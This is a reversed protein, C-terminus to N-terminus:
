PIDGARNAMYEVHASSDSKPFCLAIGMVTCGQNPDNFLPVRDTSRAEPKSHRSIPYLLLLGERPDRVARLADGYALDVNEAILQKARQLAKDDLGLEEDGRGKESAPNVLSKISGPYLKEQSRTILNMSLRGKIKLDEAGVSDDERSRVSVRWSVLEGEKVQEAIYGRVTMPDLRSTPSTRYEALFAAIHQHSVGEWTANWRDPVNPSGLENLFDRAAGLNHKLWDLDDLKFRVTQLLRGSYSQQIVRGAGMKNRATVMMAPHMRIRPGFDLPTLNEREYRAIEYRLEEEALALDRFMTILDETTWLRTLDVDSERYGFWRGMQLLTDYYHTDRLFYSVLLGELTLGRSLRNGGIVVAQLEPETEYDLTDDSGSNLLLVRTPDRFVQDLSPRLEEFTIDRSADIASITRRLDTEFRTKLEPVRGGYRWANRITQLEETVATRLREQVKTRYHTHILMSAPKSGMGRHLRAALGLLFDMLATRLSPPIRPKFKEAKKRGLPVLLQIHSEPIIRIVDIPEVEKEERPLAERGFLTEAGFYHNPRPLSIIFDKPYLDEAVERDTADHPILVNAFPTATYAVFSARAFKGLLERILGNIVAPAVENGPNATDRDEDDLDLIEAMESPLEPRNGGTNISAQDAEDDIVLAAVHHPVHGSMWEILRRLVPGNKKVVALVHENGQLIAANMTGARFDGNLEPRTIAVWRKGSDPEGVGAAGIGLERNLRRQTQRRLENHLGSLVVVIRYGVDAAKAILASFNATKGSQVYGVVLGRVRFSAPGSPRPDELHALVKDTADDLSAITAPSRQLRDILYARQRLWYYGQAPDWSKFWERRGGKLASIVRAIRIPQSIEATWRRRVESSLDESLGLMAIAGDPSLKLSDVATRVFRLLSDLDPDGASSM